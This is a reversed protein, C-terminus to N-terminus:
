ASKAKKEEDDLMNDLGEILYGLEENTGSFALIVKKLKHRPM